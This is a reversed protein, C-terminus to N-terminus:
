ENYIFLRPDIEPNLEIKRTDNWQYVIGDRMASTSMPMLFDGVKKYNYFRTLFSEDEEHSVNWYELLYTETNIYLYYNRGRTTIKIQYRPIGEGRFEKIGLLITARSKELLNRIYVPTHESFFESRKSSNKTIMPAIDPLSIVTRDKLFYFTSKLNSFTSDDYSEIRSGYRRAGFLKNFNPKEIKLFNIQKEFDQQSSYSENEIYISKIKNWNDIDGNSVTDLYRHIIERANQSYVSSSLFLLCVILFKM